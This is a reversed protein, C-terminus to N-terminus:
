PNYNSVADWWAKHAVGFADELQRRREQSVGGRIGGELADRAGKAANWLRDWEDKLRQQTAPDLAMMDETRM